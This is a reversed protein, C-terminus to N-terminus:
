RSYIRVFFSSTFIERLSEKLLIRTGRTGAVSLLRHRRLRRVRSRPLQNELQYKGFLAARVSNYVEHRIKGVLFISVIGAVLLHWLAGYVNDRFSNETNSLYLLNESKCSEQSWTSMSSNGSWIRSKKKCALYKSRSVRRKWYFKGNWVGKEKFRMDGNM